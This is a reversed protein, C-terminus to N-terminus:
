RRPATTTAISVTYGYDLGWNPENLLDYGAVTPDDRFTRALWAWVGILETQIGERDDWFSEWATMVAPSLERAMFRCRWKGDTITAWEPAGDWGPNTSFPAPCDQDPATAVYKGWAEQHMDLIVYLGRARAWDVVQRARALYADDFVGRAPELASWHVLLRIVNMGLAAIQDLDRETVGASSPVEPNGQFYDGLGIVAVGRLLVTRDQVDVIRGDAVRLAPPAGATPSSGAEGCGLM